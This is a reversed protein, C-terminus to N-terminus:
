KREVSEISVVYVTYQVNDADVDVDDDSWDAYCWLLIVITCM